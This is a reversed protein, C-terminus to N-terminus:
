SFVRVKKTILKALKHCFSTVYYLMNKLGLARIFYFRALRYEGSQYFYRARTGFTKRMEKFNGESSLWTILFEKRRYEPSLSLNDGSVYRIVCPDIEKCKYKGTVQMSWDRDVCGFYTEFKPVDQNVLLISSMYFSNKSLTKLGSLNM